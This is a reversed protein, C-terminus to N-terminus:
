KIDLAGLLTKFNEEIPANKIDVVIDALSQYQQYRDSYKKMLIEEIEQMSGPNQDIVYAPANKFTGFETPEIKAMIRAISYDIDLRLFVFKDCVRLENLAPPNDCIGGGTSIVIQRAENEKVIKGCAEEEALCFEGVGKTQYLTRFDVGRIQGIVDDTDFFGVGLEKALLKGQTTKGCHKCGMLVISKSIGESM